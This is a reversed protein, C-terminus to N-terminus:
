TSCMEFENADFEVDDTSEFLDEKYRDVLEEDDPEPALGFGLLLSLKIKKDHVKVICGDVRKLMRKVGKIECGVLSNDADSLFLTILENLRKSYSRTDKVYFILSDTKREYFPKAVFAGTPRNSKLYSAFEKIGAM